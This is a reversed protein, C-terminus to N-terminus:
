AEPKGESARVRDRVADWAWWLFLLACIALTAGATWAFFPSDIIHPVAGAFGGCLLLSIGMKPGALAMALGGCVVLAAGTLTWINRSGESEVRKIEQKLRVIEANAASLEQENKKSQQVAKDWDAEVKVLFAKARKIEDVYAKDDNAAARSRAQGLDKDAPPPLHALAVKGENEVVPPKDKNEVMVTVAAAVKSDSEDLQSGLKGITASPLAPTVPKPEEKSWWSACGTLMVAAFAAYFGRAIGIRMVLGIAVILCAVTLALAIDASDQLAQQATNLQAELKGDDSKFGDSTILLAMTNSTRLANLTGNIIYGTYVSCSCAMVLLVAVVWLLNNDDKGSKRPM